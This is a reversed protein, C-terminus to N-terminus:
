KVKYLNFSFDHYAYWENKPSLSFKDFLSKNCSIQITHELLKGRKKSMAFGSELKFKEGPYTFSIQEHLKDLLVSVNVRSKETYNFAFEGEFELWDEKSLSKFVYRDEKLVVDWFGKGEDINNFVFNQKQLVKFEPIFKTFITPEIKYADGKFMLETCELNIDFKLVILDNETVYIYYDYWCNHMYNVKKGVWENKLQNLIKVETVQFNDESRFNIITDRGTETKFTQVFPEKCDIIYIAYNGKEFNFQELFKTQSFAITQFLILFLVVFYLRM